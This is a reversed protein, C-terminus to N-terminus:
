LTYVGPGAPVANRTDFLLRAHQALAAHDVVSHATVVLVCDAAGVVEPSLEVATLGSKRLQYASALEM